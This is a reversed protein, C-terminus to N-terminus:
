KDFKYEQPSRGVIKSFNRNFSSYNFYGLAAAVESIPMDTHRLLWKAQEMKQTVMYKSIPIGTEKKFVRNLYDSNLHVYGALTDVSLEESIHEKIYDKVLAVPTKRNTHNNEWSNLIGAIYKVWEVLGDLSNEAKLLLERNEKAAVLDRLFVKHKESFDSLMYYFGKFFQNMFAKNVVILGFDRELTYGIEEVVAAYSGHYREYRETIYRSYEFNKLFDGMTHQFIIIQHAVVNNFDLQYLQEIQGPIDSISVKNGVYCCVKIKLYRLAADALTRCHQGIQDYLITDTVGPRVRLMILIRDESLAELEHIAVNMRFVEETINRLAFSFLSKDELSMDENIMRPSILIPVFQGNMPIELQNRGIYNSISEENTEIDGNFLERWFQKEAAKHGKEWYDGARKLHTEENVKRAANKLVRELNEFDLPKLIYDFSGLRVAQQAFSFDAHCTMFICCLEPRHENIWEVLDLGTGMPMEIDCLLVSIKQENIIEIAEAMNSATYVMTFDLHQWCVGQQVALIASEEDDVILLNM